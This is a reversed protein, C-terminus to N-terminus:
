TQCGVRLNVDDLEVQRVGVPWRDTINDHSLVGTVGTVSQTFGKAVCRAKHKMIQGEENKKYAFVWKGGIVNIWPQREVLEYADHAKFSSIEERSTAVGFVCRYIGHIGRPSNSDGVRRIVSLAIPVPDRDDRLDATTSIPYVPFHSNHVIYYTIIYYLGVGVMIM